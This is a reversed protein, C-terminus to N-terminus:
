TAMKRVSFQLNPFPILVASATISRSILIRRALFDQFEEDNEDYKSANLTYFLHRLPASLVAEMTRGDDGLIRSLPLPQNLDKDLILVRLIAQIYPIETIYRNGDLKSEKIYRSNLSLISQIDPIADISVIEDCYVGATTIIGRQPSLRSFPTKENTISGRADSGLYRGDYRGSFNQDALRWDPVWSPLPSESGLYEAYYFIAYHQSNKWALEAFEISVQEMSKNCDPLIPLGSIGLLSYAMDRTDTAVLRMIDQLVLSIHVVDDV